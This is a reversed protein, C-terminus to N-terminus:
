KDNGKESTFVSFGDGAGVRTISQSKLAEVGSPRSRWSEITGHGLQGKRGEGWTFVMHDNTLAVM